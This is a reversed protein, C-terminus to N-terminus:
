AQRILGVFLGEISFDASRPDVEIPAFDQNEALLRVKEGQRTYRKLTVEDGIRAVVVQGNRADSTKHVAVLDGDIVGINRMSMGKVRLLFDAHPHFYNADFKVRTEINEQALIPSGAAVRGIVALGSEQLLTIGRAKGAQLKIAGKTVLAQLHKVVANHSAFGFHAQIEQLSPPMSAGDITERIFDFIAQQRPTLNQLIPEINSFTTKNCHSLIQLHHL